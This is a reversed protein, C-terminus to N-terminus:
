PLLKRLERLLNFTDEVPYYRQNSLLQPILEAIIIGKFQLGLIPAIIERAFYETEKSRGHGVEVQVNDESAIRVHMHNVRPFIWSIEKPTYRQIIWHSLDGNFKLDPIADAIIKAVDPNETLTHRHTELFYQIGSQEAITKRTIVEVIGQGTSLNGEIMSSVYTGGLTRVNKCLESYEHVNKSGGYAIIGDCSGLIKVGFKESNRSVEHFHDRILVNDVEMGDVQMKKTIRFM